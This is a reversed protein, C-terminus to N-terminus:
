EPVKQTLGDGISSLRKFVELDVIVPIQTVAGDVMCFQVINPHNSSFQFGNSRESLGKCTWIPGMGAWLYSCSGGQDPPLSGGMSEGFLFTCSAGDSVDAFTTKSRNYFVGKRQDNLVRVSPTSTLADTGAVGLYNTRAYVDGANNTFAFIQMNITSGSLFFQVGIKVSDGKKEYPQDSPCIFVPVTSRALDRAKTRTWWATGVKAVDFLSASGSSPTSAFDLDIRNKITEAELQPLLFALCGTFQPYGNNPDAQGQPIAGLYGPPFCSFAADFNHAALGINKLHSSCQARRAAERAAQVAPLLLAILVGIIAIVILLEVLTFAGRRDERM